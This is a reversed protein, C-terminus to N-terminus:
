RSTDLSSIDWAKVTKDASGSVLRKGDSSVNVSTVPGSHGKLTLMVKGTLVDWIKVTKDASGSVLWMGDPSFSVASVRGTHGSLALTEEGNNKLGWVKVTKDFESCGAIRTGDPSVSM